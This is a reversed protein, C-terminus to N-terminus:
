EKYIYLHLDATRAIQPLHTICILQHSRSLAKMIEGVKLAVEGSIGSDIEDFIMTPLAEADAMLSKICLMLRSLEGGSAVDKIERPAFGKNASFLFKIETLGNENLYQHETKKIEVKFSANPMGVKTLLVVVHTQFDRLVKERAAHLKDAMTVLEKRQKEM